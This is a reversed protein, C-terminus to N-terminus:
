KLSIKIPVANNKLQAKLLDVQIIKGFVCVGFMNEIKWHPIGWHKAWDTHYKEWWNEFVEREVNELTNTDELAIYIKPCLKVWPKALECMRMLDNPEHNKWYTYPTKGLESWSVYIDGASVKTQTDNLWQRDMPKELPGAKERYDICVTHSHRNSRSYDECIHIHEHFDLWCPDGDYNEEYIKHIYNFYQQDQVLCRSRDIDISVKQAYYSLRDIMESYNVNEKYYPNDWPRWPIPLRSLNKYIKQYLDGLSNSSDLLLDIVL